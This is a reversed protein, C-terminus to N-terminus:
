WRKRQKVQAILRFTKSYRNRGAIPPMGSRLIIEVTDLLHERSTKNKLSKTIAELEGNKLAENWRASTDTSVGLTKYIEYYSCENHLMLILVIRKALMTRETETLLQDFIQTIDKRTKQRSFLEVLQRRLREVIDAPLKKKSTFAMTNIYQHM